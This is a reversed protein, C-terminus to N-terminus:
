ANSVASDRMAYASAADTFAAYLRRMKDDTDVLSEPHWQVAVMWHDAAEGELAEILGDSATASVILGKGITKIGQHHMSNVPLADAGVIERLRSGPAVRVEQSLFDREYLGHLPFYDHKVADPMDAAIDQWLTGGQVVNVIQMGRCVGFIPMADEMAWRALTIETEDRAPDTHGCVDERETHYSEPDVDFGGMLFLGDLRDFIARLTVHDQELPILWPIAGYQVLVEVYRQRMVWSRPLQDEVGELTQTPIGIVPRINM